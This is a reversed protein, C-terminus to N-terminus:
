EIEEKDDALLRTRRSVIRWAIFAGGGLMLAPALWLLWTRPVFPPKYLVFDGYRATM